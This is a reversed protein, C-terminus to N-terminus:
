AGGIVTSVAAEPAPAAEEAMPAAAPPPPAVENFAEPLGFLRVVEERIKDVSVGLSPLMPLLQMIQQKKLVDTM